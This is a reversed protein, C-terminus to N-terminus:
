RPGAAIEVAFLHRACIGTERRGRRAGSCRGVVAVAVAFPIRRRQSHAQSLAGDLVIGVSGQGSGFHPRLARLPPCTAALEEVRLLHGGNM